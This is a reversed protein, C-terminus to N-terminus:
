HIHVKGEALKKGQADGVVVIYIGTNAGQMDINLLTYPGTVNFKRGYVAAGKSDFVMIQQQTASGSSNYYSVTYRGDNPSPFIFLHSSISYTITVPQSTCSGTANTVIVRYRGLKNIDATVSSGTAGAITTWTTGGDTSLQWTITIGPGPSVNVTLTTVQGPLLSTLPSVTIAPQPTVNLTAASSNASGCPATGSIVCRYQNGGMGATIGTLTLTSTTAGSYVGGNTIATWSTGGNTSEQWQYAPATGTATVAFSITGTACVSQTSPQATISVPTNVTLIAANSAAAPNCTGTVVCRYRNGNMGATVASVTYSATTAGGINSWTAGGDISLQWQYTIGTGTATVSFTNSGGACLTVSAPQATLSPLTNVTLIAATSIGPTACVGNSIVCRYRYGNMSATTAATTYSANTAGAINNFTTGGDISLQWQYTLGAGSGAATFSATSGECVAQNGPQTTVTVSSVVTITACSSNVSGACAGTATVVCQYSTTSAPSATYCNSTAAAINTWPGACTPASQWQYTLGTGTATVCLQNTQGTCITAGSPQATISAATNVTLTASNSNTSGCIATAVCRYLNGNMGATVGTLTLTATTAGGVNNWTAGGDTSVQWQFSSATASAISFTANSGACVTQNTPQTTIVPGSGPNITYTVTVTQTTAGTATGQITVNYTGPSLTNASNLIVNSSGGPAVPNTSFSISTGGPVGSIASLTIPNIFGGSSSTTLNVSMTGPAPCTTTAAAPTNFAFGGSAAPITASWIGRGHTGAAITRDSSRYKIMDTRVTPFSTNPVWVTSAGNLNDTEWVGTETAIYAKTDTDPHFLAWRVPMDPLNGDCATWTTGGNTSVWVQTVGYSSYTAMLNNDSSGTVVCNVYGTAGAPTITTATPTATNAADVKFITASGTGFFVRHATYPSCHVASVNGSGFAAVTIVNTTAGTQPNDWRLYNGATNCAYIINTNNDYDWPNVFRGTSQNNVPTSWSAGANTSRRYVNYVYSGFQYQPENQDIAAYCGDGGVVEASSDLGPHNMRHMGNDQAGGIFYDPQVPSMAVSYFQKLRLGKNRDSNNIGGDTSFHVGGDCAFLLKTGGDWWQLNHQDAHVYFGTTSTAWSSIKTWSTGGNTTKYCDLGGVICENPNSPNIACSLAYWGQGSAWGSAPQAATAAWNDGGDTTKYITPVQASADVPLAYLTNGMVALECRDTLSPFATTPSNWGSGSTVTAPIDTYRYTQSSGIGTTMHLRAPGSTSSIELDCISQSPVGTPTINTWSTGGDSSRYLGGPAGASNRTALYVNGQFDCLIRTCLIHATTSPLLNWTAGGDVSKFVGVGRVADANRFSEGTAVYMINQFGPRPDQCIASIALNSMYDNILVWPSPSVTIDTTKWLGGDVGGAWVTKHTADASDIMLARIRGSTQQGTPRPNGGVTFDGNPGRELWSLAATRSPNNRLINKTQETQQIAEWMKQTPVRGTAPDKTREIEFLMAQEIGDYKDNEEEEYTEKKTSSCQAFFLSITIAALCVLAPIALPKKLM